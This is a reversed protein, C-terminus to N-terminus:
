NILKRGYIPCFKVEFKIPSYEELSNDAVICMIEEGKEEESYDNYDSDYKFYMGRRIKTLWVSGEGLVAINPESKFLEEGELQNVYRSCFKCSNDM